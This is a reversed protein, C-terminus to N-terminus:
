CFLMGMPIYFFVNFTYILASNLVNIIKYNHNFSSQDHFNTAGLVIRLVTLILQGHRRSDGNVAVGANNVMPVTLQIDLLFASKVVIKASIAFLLLMMFKQRANKVHAFPFLAILNTTWVWKSCGTRLRKRKLKELWTKWPCTSMTLLLFIQSVLSM